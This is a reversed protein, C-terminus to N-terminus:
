QFSSTVTEKGFVQNRGSLWRAWRRCLGSAIRYSAVHSSQGPRPKKSANAENSRGTLAPRLPQPSVVPARGPRLESGAEVKPVQLERHRKPTPRPTRPKVRRPSWCSDTRRPFTIVAAIEAGSSHVLARAGPAARALNGSPSGGTGDSRRGLLLQNPSTGCAQARGRGLKLYTSSGFFPLGWLKM